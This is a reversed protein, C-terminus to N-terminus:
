DPASGAVSFQRTWLKLEWHLDQATVPRDRGRLADLVLRRLRSVPLGVQRLVGEVWGPSGSNDRPAGDGTGRTPFKAITNM